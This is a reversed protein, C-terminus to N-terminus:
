RVHYYYSPSHMEKAGNFVTGVLKARPLSALAKQLMAKPTMGSRVVVVVGDMLDSILTTDVLSLVPPTDVILYDYHGSYYALLHKIAESKWMRTSNIATRGVQLVGLHEYRLRRVASDEGGRNTVIDSLGVSPEKGVFQWLSPKRFDGDIVLVRRGFDKALVCAVNITTLSKGEGPLTSTIGVKQFGPQKWLGELRAALLRYREAVVSFPDDVSAIETVLPTQGNASRQNATSESLDENPYADPGSHPSDARQRVGALWSTYPDRSEPQSM